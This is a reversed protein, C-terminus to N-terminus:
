SLLFYAAFVWEFWVTILQPHVKMFFPVLPITIKFQKQM